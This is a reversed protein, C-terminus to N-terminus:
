KRLTQHFGVSLYQKNQMCYEIIDDTFEGFVPQKALQLLYVCFNNSNVEILKPTNTKDLVIDLAFLRMHPLRKSIKIAFEKVKDWNPIIFESKSLDIDNYVRYQHGYKDYACDGLKGNNDIGVFGGGQSANDVTSGIGGIRLVAGLIHLEGTKVDRYTNVRISNVSTPNFQAIYDSQTFCEQILYDEQYKRYLYELTLQENEENVLVGNIRKFFMIGRGGLEKAPKVIVRDDTAFCNDFNNPLVNNYEGDYLKDGISRFLTRPMDSPDIFLGLSNKDNYFNICDGPNLIPEIYQRATDPPVINADNGRYNCYYRYSMPSVNKDLVKWKDIFDIEGECRKNTLSQNNLFVEKLDNIMVNRGLRSAFFSLCKRLLNIASM